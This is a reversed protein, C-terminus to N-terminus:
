FPNLWPNALGITASTYSPPPLRMTLHYEVMEKDLEVLKLIQRVPQAQLETNRVQEVRFMRSDPVRFILDNPQIVPFNITWADIDSPEFGGFYTHIQEKTLSDYQALTFMPKFYGGEFSTNFCTDCHDRMLKQYAVNWCLPCRKGFVKRKFIYSPVGVLKRLFVWERRTIDLAANQVISPGRANQWTVLPSVFVGEPSFAQVFYFEQNYKLNMEPNSHIASYGTTPTQDLPKFPGAESPSHYVQFSTYTSGPLPFWQITVSNWWNPTLRVTLTPDINAPSDPYYSTALPTQTAPYYTTTGGPPPFWTALQLNLISAM